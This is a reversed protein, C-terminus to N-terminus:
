VKKRNPIGLYWLAAGLLSYLFPLKETIFYTIWGVTQNVWEPVPTPLMRWGKEVTGTVLNIDEIWEGRLYNRYLYENVTLAISFWLTLILMVILFLAIVRGFRQAWKSALPHWKMSMGLIQMFSWGACLLFAPFLIMQVSWFFGVNFTTHALKRTIPYFVAYGLGLLITLAASVILRTQQINKTDPAPGYILSNVDTDLAEAIRTLMDVDPRSKGTEYNSVTQRTVFLKEALEDQTMNKRIRLFRINKSIDKMPIVEPINYRFRSFIDRM